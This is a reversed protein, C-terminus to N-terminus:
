HYVKALRAAGGWLVAHQIGPQNAISVLADVLLAVLTQEAKARPIPLWPVGPVDRGDVRDGVGHTGKRGAGV